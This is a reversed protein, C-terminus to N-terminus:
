IFIWKHNTKKKKIRSLKDKLILALTFGAEIEDVLEVFSRSVHRVIRGCKAIMKLCERLPDNHLISRSAKISM